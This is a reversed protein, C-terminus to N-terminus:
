KHFYGKLTLGIGFITLVKNILIKMKKLYWKGAIQQRLNEDSSVNPAFNESTTKTSAKLRTISIGTTLVKDRKFGQNKLLNKLTSRTYYTLHEPYEIINYDAKLYYRLYCNFNPTTLYFLGGKRLFNYIHSTEEQPNNIHEIVEFSTIVDFEESSFTDPNLKGHRMELGNSECIKIAEESYETGYVDWGRKKAAELFWGRGCGVDLIKNTKRYPEFEDLLANYSQVTIPSLYGESSYSYNSYHKNLVELSPINEMFVLGCSKCKVLEHADFYAQMNKLKDSNCVLCQKHKEMNKKIEEHTHNKNLM